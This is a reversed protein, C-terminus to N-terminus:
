CDVTIENSVEVLPDQGVWIPLYHITRYTHTGTGKCLYTVPVELGGDHLPIEAMTQWGAPNERQVALYSTQPGCGIRAGSGKIFVDDLETTGVYLGCDVAAQAPSTLPVTLTFPIAAVASLLATLARKRITM